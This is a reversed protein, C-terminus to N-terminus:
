LSQSGAAAVMPIRGRLTGAARTFLALREDVSLMSPEGTTGTVVVGHSGEAVHFDLLQEFTDLDVEGDRFPTIVPPMSGKLRDLGSVARHAQISGIPATM